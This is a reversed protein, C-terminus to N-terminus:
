LLEAQIDKKFNPQTLIYQPNIYLGFANSYAIPHELSTYTLNIKKEQLMSELFYRPEEEFAYKEISSYNIGEKRKKLFELLDKYNDFFTFQNKINSEWLNINMTDRWYLFLM